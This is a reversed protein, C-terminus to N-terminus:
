APRARDGTIGLGPPAGGGARQRNKDVGAALGVPNPFSLGFANVGLRPDEAAPRSLPLVKLSNVALRHAAEPALARMLPRTLGDLVGIVAPSVSAMVSRAGSVRPPRRSRAAAGGGQEGGRHSARWLSAPVVCRRAFTGM